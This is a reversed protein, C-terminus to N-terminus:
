FNEATHQIKLETVNVTYPTSLLYLVGDAIDKAEIKKFSECWEDDMVNLLNTNVVGPSVNTVRIKENGSKLLEHKLSESFARVAYKTSTYIPISLDLIVKHGTVSCINIILGYGTMLKLCKRTWHVLGAFNINITRNIKDTEEKSTDLMNEAHVVGACNVLIHVECFKKEIEKMANERSNEDSIDCIISHVKDNSSKNIDLNIVKINLKLFENAIAQGMGSSAGTIVATKNTWKEM